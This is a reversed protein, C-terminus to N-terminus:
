KSLEGESFPQLELESPWAALQDANIVVYGDKSLERARKILEEGQDGSLGVRLNLVAFRDPEPTLYKVLLVTCICSLVVSVFITTVPNFVGENPDAMNMEGIKKDYTGAAIM